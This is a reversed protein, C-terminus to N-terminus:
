VGLARVFARMKEHDKVGPAHELGSCVDVADPRCVTIAAAVNEANLGGALILPKKRESPILRWDFSQGSGGRMAAPTELLIAAADKYKSIAGLIDESSHVRVSKIYPKAFQRCFEPSEEGHFQLWQIPLERIVQRVEEISPNVMVAVSDMFLPIAALLAKAQEVSICRPSEPAFILGVADVGLSHALAIDESRTMGCMKVRIKKM